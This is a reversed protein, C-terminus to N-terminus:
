NMAKKAATTSTQIDNELAAMQEKSPTKGDITIRLEPEVEVELRSADVGWLAALRKRLAQKLITPM